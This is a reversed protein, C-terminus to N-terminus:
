YGAEVDVPHPVPEGRAAANLSAALAEMRLAESGTVESARHPSMVVNSLEHFPFRSPFVSTVDRENPPYTYWVDLGAAGIRRDRLADFLAEEDITPGRGVNVVVADSALRELVGRDVIGRTEPTLPVTVILAAAGTVAESLEASTVIAVGTEADEAAGPRRRVATVQMDLARCARVVRRGIAGYGLVVAGRGALPVSPLQTYRPTWDGTRFTRDIPILQKAAALVLAITLEAVAPANDHLNSVAIAPRALLRERTRGPLGTWPVILRRLAASADLLAEDPVGAVLVEFDPPSPTEGITLVVAPILHTRLVDLADPGPDEALHVRLTRGNPAPNRM